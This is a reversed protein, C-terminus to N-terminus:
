ARCRSSRHRHVRLRSAATTSTITGDKQNMVYKGGFPEPPFSEIINGTELDVLRTPMKGYRSQYRRVGEQLFLIDKEILIEKLRVNLSDQLLPDKVERNVSELFMLASDLDGAEVSMKAALKPLYTPSGPIKAAIQLYKASNAPDCLEFFYNYGVLYPLEWRNPNHKMGKKLITSSEEIMGAWVGLITGTIQYAWVFHPDIDTLAQVAHFAWMLGERSESANGIHQVVKLWILDSVLQDYGLSIIGLYKGNPIYALTSTRELNSREEKVIALTSVAGVSFLILLFGYFIWPFMKQAFRSKM